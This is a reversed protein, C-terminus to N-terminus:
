VKFSIVLTLKKEKLLGLGQLKSTNAIFNEQFGFLAARPTVTYKEMELNEKEPYDPHKVCVSAKPHASCFDQKTTGWKLCVALAKETGCSFGCIAVRLYRERRYWQTFLIIFKESKIVDDINTLSAIYREEESECKGMLQPVVVTAPVYDPLAQAYEVVPRKLRRDTSTRLLELYALSDTVMLELKRLIHRKEVRWPMGTASTAGAESATRTEAGFIATLQASLERQQSQLKQSMTKSGEQIAETIRKESETSNRSIADIQTSVNRTQELVENVKSQLAPLRDQYPDRILAKLEDICSKIDGASVAVSQGLTPDGAASVMSEIRCGARYHGPLDQHLVLNNCQPCTVTHFTCEQEYHTLVTQLTGVFTCGYAENWCCAKLRDATPGQLHLTQCDGCPFIEEDFPCVINGDNLSHNVCLDCLTHLCPLLFTTQPIVHCLGCTLHPPVPASFKTVRWNVGQIFGRVRYISVAQDPM